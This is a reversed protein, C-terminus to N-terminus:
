AQQRVAAIVERRRARYTMALEMEAMLEECSTPDAMAQKLKEATITGDESFYKFHSTFAKDLVDLEQKTKQHLSVLDLTLM